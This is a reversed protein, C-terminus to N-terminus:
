APPVDSTPDEGRDIADWPTSQRTSSPRAGGPADGGRAVGEPAEGGPAEFRRGLGPWARGRALVSAGAVGIIVGGVAAIVWWANSAFRVGAVASSVVAITGSGLVISGVVVRGWSRTAIVALVGALAVWASASALPALDTGSMTAIRVPGTVDDLMPVAVISWTLSCALLVTVAGGALALLSARM